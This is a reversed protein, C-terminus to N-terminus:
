LGDMLQASVLTTNGPDTFAGSPGEVGMFGSNLIWNTEVFFDGVKTMFGSVGNVAELVMGDHLIDCGQWLYEGM